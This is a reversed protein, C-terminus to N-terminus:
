ASISFTGHMLTYHGPVTCAFQLVEVGPPVTWTLEKAGRSWAPIGVDTVAGPGSVEPEQGIYFSHSFNATNTIRFLVTEGPTVPIDLVQAGSEDTFRLASNADLEIVRVDADGAAGPEPSGAPDEAPDEAPVAFAAPVTGAAALERLKETCAAVDDSIAACFEEDPIVHGGGGALAAPSLLLLAGLSALTIRSIAM